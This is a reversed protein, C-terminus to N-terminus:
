PDEFTGGPADETAEPSTAGQLLVAEVPSAFFLFCFRLLGAHCIRRCLVGSVATSQDSASDPRQAAGSGEM